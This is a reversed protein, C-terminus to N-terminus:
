RIKIYHLVLKTEIITQQLPRVREISLHPKKHMFFSVM